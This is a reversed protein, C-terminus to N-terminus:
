GIEAVTFFKFAQNKYLAQGAGSDQYTALQLVDGKNFAGAWTVTATRRGWSAALTVGNIRIQTEVDIDSNSYMLQASIQYVAAHPITLTGASYTIGGPTNGLDGKGSVYGSTIPTITGSPITANGNNCLSRALKRHDRTGLVITERHHVQVWVKSGVRVRCLLSPSFPLPATDGNLQVRVPDISTIIGWTFVDGAAAPGPLALEFPNTTM